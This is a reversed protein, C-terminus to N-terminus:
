HHKVDNTGNETNPANNPHFGESHTRLCGRLWRYTSRVIPIGRLTVKILTLLLICWFSALRLNSFGNPGTQGSYEVEFKTGIKRRAMRRRWIESNERLPAIRGTSFAEVAKLAHGNIHPHRTEAWIKFSFRNGLTHPPDPHAFHWLAVEPDHWFEPVGANVMRWGLEYPGCMYGRYSSHEDLGGYRIFDSIRITMCAGVNPWLEMWEFDSLQSMQMIGGPYTSLTRWEYHMLVLPRPRADAACGFNKLISAVFDPPYIADSDSFTVLEGRAHLAAANWAAHKHYIGRQHCVIHQDVKDAIFDLVRDHAEVWIVEYLSRDVTQNNLWELAHFNERVSWDLLIISLLPQLTPAEPSKVMTAGQRRDSKSVMRGEPAREINSGAQHRYGHDVTEHLRIGKRM